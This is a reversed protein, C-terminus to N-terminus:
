PTVATYEVSVIATRAGEFRLGASGTVLFTTPPAGTGSLTFPGARTLFLELAVGAARTTALLEFRGRRPGAPRVTFDPVASGVVPHETAGGPRTADYGLVEAVTTTAGTATNTLTPV